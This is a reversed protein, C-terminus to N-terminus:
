FYWVCLEGKQEIVQRDPDDYRQQLFEDDDVAVYRDKDIRVRAKKGAVRAAEIRACLAEDYDVWDVDNWWKYVVRTNHNM